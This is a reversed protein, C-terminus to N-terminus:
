YTKTDLLIYILVNFMRSFSNYNPDKIVDSISNDFLQKIYVNNNKTIKTYKDVVKNIFIFNYSKDECMNLLNDAIKNAVDSCMNYMNEYTNYNVANVFEPTMEALHLTRYYMGLATSIDKVSM